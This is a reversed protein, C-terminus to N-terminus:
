NPPSLYAACSNLIIFKDIFTLGVSPYVYPRMPTYFLCVYTSLGDYFICVLISLCASTDLSAWHTCYLSRCDYGSLCVVHLKKYVNYVDYLLFVSSSYIRQTSVGSLCFSFNLPLVSLRIEIYVSLLVASCIYLYFFSFRSDHRLYITKNSNPSIFLVSVLWRVNKHCCVFILKLFHKIIMNKLVSMSAAHLKYPSLYISIFFFCQTM